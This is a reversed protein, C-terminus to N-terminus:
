NEIGGQITPILKTIVTYAIIAITVWFGIGLAYSIIEGLLGPIGFEPSQFTILQGILAWASPKMADFDIEYSILYHLTGALFGDYISQTSNTELIITASLYTGKVTVTLNSVADYDALNDDYLFDGFSEGAVYLACRDQITWYDIGLFSSKEVDRIQIVPSDLFTDYGWWFELFRNSIATTWQPPAPADTLSSYPYVATDEAFSTYVALDTAEFRDKVVQNVLNPNEYDSQNLYYETPMAAFLM